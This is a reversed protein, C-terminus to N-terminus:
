GAFRLYGLSWPPLAPVSFILDSGTATPRLPLDAKEPRVWRATRRAPGRVRVRLPPSRDISVNLLMISCLSGDPHVRPAVAVQAPTDVIAPLKDRSVWDAVALLQARRASSVVHEWGNYGLV